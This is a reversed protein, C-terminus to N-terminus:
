KDRFTASAERSEFPNGFFGGYYGFYGYNYPMNRYQVSIEMNKTPYYNVAARSIYIGNLDNQFNKGFSSYPSYVLSIDMQVNMNSMLKYFMSNTYVGLSTGYGGITSYSLNFSHHMQFNNANLFGFSDGSSHNVVGEKVSPENLGNDKFQAFLTVSAFFIILLILNKM